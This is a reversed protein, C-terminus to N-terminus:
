KTVAPRAGSVPSAGPRLGPLKSTPQRTAAGPMPMGGPLGGAAGPMGSSQLGAALGERSVVHTVIAIHRDYKGDKWTVRLEIERVANELVSGLNQIMPALTALSMGGSGEPPNDASSGAGSPTPVEVKRVRAAWRFDDFGEEEFDGDLLKMFDGFGEEKLTQQVDLMKGRALLTAVTYMKADNTKEIAHVEIEVMVGMSLAVIAVAIMVELLTFGRRCQARM